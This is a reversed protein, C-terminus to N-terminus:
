IALTYGREEIFSRAKEVSLSEPNRFSATFHRDKAKAAQEETLGTENAFDKNTMKHLPLVDIEKALEDVIAELEKSDTGLRILLHNDEMSAEKIEHKFYGKPIYIAGGNEVISPENLGLMKEYELTEAKTKSTSFVLASKTEKIRELAPKADELSYDKALLTGDLDSFFVFKPM